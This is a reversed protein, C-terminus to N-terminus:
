IEHRSNKKWHELANTLDRRLVRFHAADRANKGRLRKPWDKLGARYAAVDNALDLALILQKVQWRSLIM